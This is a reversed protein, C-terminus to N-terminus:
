LVARIALALLLLGFLTNIPNQWRLFQSKAAKTQLLLAFLIWVTSGEIVLIAAYTFREAPSSGADLFMLLISSIIIIVKPNLLNTIFGQLFASRDALPASSGIPRADDSTVRKARVSLLLKIGLYSLYLAGGYKFVQYFTGSEKFLFTLGTLAITTHIIIGSIIGAITFLAARLNHNFSNKLILLMDPGPSLQGVLMLFAFYCYDLM